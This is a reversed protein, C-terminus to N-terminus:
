QVLIFLFLIPSLSHHLPPAFLTCKAFWPPPGLIHAISSFSSWVLSEDQPHNPPSSLLSNTLIWSPTLFEPNPSRMLNAHSSSLMTCDVAQYSEGTYGHETITQVVRSFITSPAISPSVVDALMLSGSKPTDKASQKRWLLQAKTQGRHKLHSYAWYQTILPFKM